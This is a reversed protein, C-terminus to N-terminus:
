SEVVSCDAFGCYYLIRKFQDLEKEAESRSNWSVALELRMCSERADNEFVYQGMFKGILIGRSESKIRYM